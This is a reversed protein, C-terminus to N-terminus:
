IPDTALPAVNAKECQLQGPLESEVKRAQRRSGTSDFRQLWGDTVCERMLSSSRVLAAYMLLAEYISGVSLNQGLGKLPKDRAYIIRFFYTMISRGLEGTKMNEVIGFEPYAALVAENVPEGVLNSLFIEQLSIAIPAAPWQRNESLPHGCDCNMYHKRHRPIEQACRECTDILIAKHAQCVAVLSLDWECRFYEEQRLCQPCCRQNHDNKLYLGIEKQKYSFPSRSHFGPCNLHFNEYSFKSGMLLKMQWPKWDLVRNVNQLKLMSLFGGLGEMHNANALRLIYGAQSEGIEPRPRIMLM